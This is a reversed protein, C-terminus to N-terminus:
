ILLFVNKFNSDKFEFEPRLLQRINIIEHWIGLEPKKM